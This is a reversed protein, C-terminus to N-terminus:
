EIVWYSFSYQTNDAGGASVGFSVTFTGTTASAVYVQRAASVADTRGVVLIAKPATTYPRRFTLVSDCTSSTGGTGTTITFSGASDTSGAAVAATPTTGCSAPTGITPPTTQVSRFHANALVLTAFTTDTGTVSINMNTSDGVFFAAATSNQIQFATASDVRNSFITSGNNDITLNQHTANADQVIFNDAQATVTGGSQFNTLSTTTGGSNVTLAQTGGFRLSRGNSLNIDGGAIDLKYAASAKGIAVRGNVTDVNFITNTGLSNQVQLATPSDESNQFLVQGTNSISVHAKGISGAAGAVTVYNLHITYVEPAFFCGPPSFPDPMFGFGSSIFCTTKIGGNFPRTLNPDDTNFALWYTGGATLGASPITLTNLANPVLNTIASTALLSGPKSPLDGDDDYLAVQIHNSSSGGNIFVSISKATGGVEGMTAKTAVLVGNIGTGTTFSGMATQGLTANAGSPQSPTGVITPNIFLTTGSSDIVSTKLTGVTGTGAVNFNGTQQVGPSSSQLLVGPPSQTSNFINTTTTAETSTNGVVNVFQQGDYYALKNSTQDFYLQGTVPNTPQSTPTLIISSEVQLHGNVKLSEAANGIESTLVDSLPLRVIGFSGAQLESTDRSRIFTFIGGALLILAAFVYLITRFRAHRQLRQQVELYESRAETPTDASSSLTAQNANPDYTLSDEPRALPDEIDSRLGSLDTNQM